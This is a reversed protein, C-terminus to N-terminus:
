QQLRSTSKLHPKRPPEKLSRKMNKRQKQPVVLQGLKKGLAEKESYGFAKKAAPNWYIVTDDVNALIITDMASTSIARFLEESGRLENELKKRETIDAVLALKGTVKGQNDTM